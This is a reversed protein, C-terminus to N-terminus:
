KLQYRYLNSERLIFGLKLYLKNAAIRYPQSTLDVTRAGNKGAFNILFEIMAKGFGMGRQSSDVVVDEIWAKTGTPIDFFCITAMGAVEDRDNHITFLHTMGSNIIKKIHERSPLERDAVLQPLLNLIAIYTDETYINM